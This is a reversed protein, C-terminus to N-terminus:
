QLSALLKEARNIHKAAPASASTATDPENVANLWANLTQGNIGLWTSFRGKSFGSVHYCNVIYLIAPDVKSVVGDPKTLGNHAPLLRARELHCEIPPGYRLDSKTPRNAAVRLWSWMLSTPVQLRRSIEARPLPCAIVRTAFEIHADTITAVPTRGRPPLASQEYAARGYAKLYAAHKLMVDITVDVKNPWDTHHVTLPRVPLSQHNKAIMEIIDPDPVM